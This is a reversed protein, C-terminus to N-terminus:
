GEGAEEEAVKNSEECPVLMGLEQLGPFDKKVCFLINFSNGQLFSYWRRRKQKGKLLLPCNFPSGKFFVCVFFWFAFFLM